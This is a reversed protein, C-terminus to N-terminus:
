TGRAGEAAAAQLRMHHFLYQQAHGGHPGFHSETFALLGRPTPRRRPFYLRRLARLVWVDVPFAADFGLSFLCVCDAIKRGVGPLEMLAARAGGLTGASLGALDLAGSAVRQAATRLWPARFGMRCDRLERESCAALREATPFAFAPAHGAPVPVPAGYRACLTEVIQRIHPIQKTSSLIFSGLCEWPEQRLLRLGRCAAVAARLPADDPFSRHVAALDEGARFYEALGGAPGDADVTWVELAGRTASVGVWRGRVVGEWAGGRRRWRFAQGGELTAELDYDTVPWSLRPPGAFPLAAKPPAEFAGTSPPSAADAGPENM